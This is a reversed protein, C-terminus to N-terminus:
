LVPIAKEVFNVLFGFIPCVSSMTVIFKAVLKVTETADCQM